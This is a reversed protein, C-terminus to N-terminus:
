KYITYYDELFPVGLIWHDRVNDTASYTKINYLLCSGNNWANTYLNNVNIPYVVEENQSNLLNISLNFPTSCDFYYGDQSQTANLTILFAQYSTDDMVISSTGTDFLGANVSPQFTLSNITFSPLAVTWKYPFVSSGLSNSGPVLPLWEIDENM